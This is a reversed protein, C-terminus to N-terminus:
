NISERRKIKEIIKEAEIARSKDDTYKIFDKLSAIANERMGIKNYLLALIWYTPSLSPKIEISKKYMDLAEIIRGQNEYILGLNSYARAYKPDLKITQQLQYIAEDIKKTRLFVFSSNFRIDADNPNLKLAEKYEVLAEEYLSNMTYCNALNYHFSVDKPNLEIAKKYEDIGKMIENNRIYANALNYRINANKPNLKRAEELERLASLYMDNENLFNAIKFRLDANQPEVSIAKYFVELAKDKNGLRMYVGGLGIYQEIDDPKLEIAKQLYYISEQFKSEKIYYLAIDAYNRQDLSDTEVKKKLNIEERKIEELLYKANMDDPNIKLAEYYKKSREGPIGKRDALHGEIVLKTATSYKEIEAKLKDKGKEDMGINGLYPFIIKKYKLIATINAIECEKRDRLKTQSFELLPKDDTNIPVEETLDKIDNEDLLFGDLLAIPNSLNVEGLDEKIKDENMTEIYKDFDISLKNQMGILVGHKNTSNSVYWYYSFPFVDQFTKLIMKFDFPALDLPVWTSVVGNENLKKRLALFHEKTFLAACEGTTPYTADNMIVDYKERTLIAYNKGDMIIPNLRKDNLVSRNLDPFYKEAADLIDRSIEVMDLREIDHLLVSHSTEGSGFGIQMAKKANGHLFIPLHGQLKQITRLMFETGAVNTGDVALLDGQYFYEPYKHVTTTGSIGEKFYVLESGKEYANFISLFQEKKIHLTQIIIVLVLLATLLVKVLLKVNKIFYLVVLGILINVFAIFMIGKPTGFLPLIVFGAAISGLVSGVTNFSYVEGISKGVKKINKTWIKGVVPFVAGMLLTPIFIIMGTEMFRIINWKKWGVKGVILALKDNIEVFNSLLYITVLASLGILVEFISFLKLGDFRDSLKGGIYGGFALGFLFTTLMITFAYVSISIIYIIIRTWLVEYALACFGSLAFALLIMKEIKYVNKTVNTESETSNINSVIEEKLVIEEVVEKRSMLWVLFGILVNIGAFIYVTENVGLIRIMFFGALFCGIVAGFTNVSYLSGVKSGLDIKVKVFYKSLVPLTGGMMITPILMMLFSMFFRVISLLFSNSGVMGFLGSYLHNSINVLFPILSASIGIGIELLSYIKIPNGKEDILKGFYYSGLALGTMFASLVTSVALTTNGFVLTFMRTWIVEYVLGAAGSIFFFIFIFTKINKPKM